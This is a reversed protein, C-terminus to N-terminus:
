EKGDSTHKGHYKKGTFTTQDTTSTTTAAAPAAAATATTTTTTRKAILSLSVMSTYTSHARRRKTRKDASGQM